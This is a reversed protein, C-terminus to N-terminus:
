LPAFIARAKELGRILADVDAKTNYIHFSARLSSEIQLAGHLPIACHHGARVAVRDRALIEAVDHPHAFACTFSVIGINKTVDPESILVVGEVERLRTVAEAVLEQTYAHIHEVGIEKIYDVAAGLGIVGAINKTGAEFRAPIDEWKAKDGEFRAVMHGGFSAPNLKKLLEKRVWLVGVGTPAFMKHGSFYLADCDLKKVDIPIHGVAATADVVLLAHHRHAMDAICRIDNIEGTVNSALMASVLGTRETILEEVKQYDLGVGKLPITHLPIDCRLAFQQLPIVAGHHEMVTTVIDKGEEALHLSEDVMRVFINSSETAGSTFIIEEPEVNIFQAVKKRSEEYLGTAMVAERFLGRHVNARYETYYAIVADLIVTPTLSTAASDLYHLEAEGEHPASVGVAFQPFDKRINVIDFTM